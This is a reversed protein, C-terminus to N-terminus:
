AKVEQEQRLARRKEVVHEDYIGHLWGALIMIAAAVLWIDLNWLFSVVKQIGVWQFQPTPFFTRVLFEVTEGYRLWEYIHRAIEFALTVASLGCLWGYLRSWFITESLEAQPNRVNDTM